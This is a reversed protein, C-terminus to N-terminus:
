AQQIHQQQRRHWMQLDWLVRGDRARAWIRVPMDGLYKSADISVVRLDLKFSKPDFLHQWFHMTWVPGPTFHLGARSSPKTM